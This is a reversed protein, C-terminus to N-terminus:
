VGMNRKRMKGGTKGALVNEKFSKGANGGKGRELEQECDKTAFRKGALYKCIVRQTVM